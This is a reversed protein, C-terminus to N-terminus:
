TYDEQIIKSTRNELDIFNEVVTYFTTNYPCEITESLYDNDVQNGVDATMKYHIPNWKDTVEKDISVANPILDRYANNQLEIAKGGSTYTQGTTL